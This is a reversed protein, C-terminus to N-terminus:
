VQQGRGAGLQARSRLRQGPLIGQYVRSCASKSLLPSVSRLPPSSLPPLPCPPFRRSAAEDVALTATGAPGRRSCAQQAFPAASSSEASSTGTEPSGSRSDLTSQPADAGSETKTVLNTPATQLRPLRPCPSAPLTQLHKPHPVLVQCSVSICADQTPLPCLSALLSSGPKVQLQTPTPYKVPISSLPLM